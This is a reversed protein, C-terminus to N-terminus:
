CKWQYDIFFFLSLIIIQKLRLWVTKNASKTHYTIWDSSKNDRQYQIQYYEAYEKGQGNVFRGQTEVANIFFLQRM